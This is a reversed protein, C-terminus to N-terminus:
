KDKKMHPDLADRLGDGLYNFALLTLTLTAGPFVILWWGDQLFNAGESALIGWTCDIVNLGLFSLFSEQLIVSPVTLTAYIVIIGITNPIIHRTIIQFDKLGLAKAALVFEKRKLGLVQGRVIRATTLWQVAGLAGFLILKNRGLFAILIIVLFMYPLSYLIDVIRMMIMDTRGGYYGSITGYITGISISIFAAFFGIMLSLQGGLLIRAFLDRGLEDTGAWHEWSPPQLQEELVQLHPDQFFLEGVFVLITMFILFFFSFLAAKNKLLGQFTTKMLHALM